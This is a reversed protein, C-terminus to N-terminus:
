NDLVNERTMWSSRQIWFSMNYDDFIYDTLLRSIELWYWQYKLNSQNDNRIQSFLLYSAYKVIALDFSDPFLSDQLETITPLRKYYDLDLTWSNDPTPDVWLKTWFIYYYYPTWNSFTDYTKKLEKKTTRVLEQWNYRVLDLKIFDSPLNYEKTWSITTYTTNEQNERRAYNWDSQIKDYAGNISFDIIDNSWVKWNPDIKIENRVKTRLTTLSSMILNIILLYSTIIM